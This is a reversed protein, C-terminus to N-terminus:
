HWLINTNAIFYKEMVGLEEFPIEETSPRVYKNRSVGHNSSHTVSRYSIGDLVAAIYLAPCAPHVFLLNLITNPIFIYIQPWGIWLIYVIKYKPYTKNLKSIKPFLHVNM